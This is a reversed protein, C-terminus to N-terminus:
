EVLREKLSLGCKLKFVIEERSNVVIVDVFDEFVNDNFKLAMRNRSCFRILRKQAKLSVLQEDSDTSVRAYAAVRLKRKSTAAVNDVKFIKKM